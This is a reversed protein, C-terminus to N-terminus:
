SQTAHQCLEPIYKIGGSIFKFDFVHVDFMDTNHIVSGRSAFAFSETFSFAFHRLCILVAILVCRVGRNSQIEEGDDEVEDGSSHADDDWDPDDDNNDIVANNTVDNDEDEFGEKQDVHVHDCDTMNDDNATMGGGHNSNNDNESDTMEDKGHSM